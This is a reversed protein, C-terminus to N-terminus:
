DEKLLLATQQAIWDGWEKYYKAYLHANDESKDASLNGDKDDFITNADIYYMSNEDALESLAANLRNIAKNNIIDDCDSRSKTVHLNAEVFIKADPQQKRIFQLLKNYESVTNNFPYGIENIGLMVYIKSYKKNKLLESLSVKGVEPVSVPKNHINYVSMGVNSFFDTDKMQSYEMLGVTRSDGIFLSNGASETKNVADSTSNAASTTKKSTTEKNTSSEAKNDTEAPKCTNEDTLDSAAYSATTDATDNEKEYGAAPTKWFVMFLIVATILIFFLAFTMKNSKKM